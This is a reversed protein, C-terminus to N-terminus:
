GTLFEDIRFVSDFPIGQQQYFESAGERRDVISLVLVVNAGASRAANVAEMASGGTTTVDDLIVVNKGSIDGAAEVRKKTGHDKVNKRVFFGPLPRATGASAMAAAIVLPVAGLELGGITDVDLAAIKELILEGLLSAGAPDFMTPKLDLYFDSEKGSVLKFKGRRFSKEKIIAFGQARLALRSAGTGGTRLPEV